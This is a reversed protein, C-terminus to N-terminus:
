VEISSWIKVNEAVCVSARTKRKIHITECLANKEWHFVSPQHCQM